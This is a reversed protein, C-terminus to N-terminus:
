SIKKFSLKGSVLAESTPGHGIFLGEMFSDSHIDLIASGLHQVEQSPNNYVFQLKDKYLEGKLPVSFRSENGLSSEFDFKIQATDFYFSGVILNEVQALSCDLIYDVSEDKIKQSVRVEWSGSLDIKNPM